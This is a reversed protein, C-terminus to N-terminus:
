ATKLVWVSSGAPWVPVDALWHAEADRHLPITALGPVERTVQNLWVKSAQPSVFYSPLKLGLLKIYASDGKVGRELNGVLLMLSGEKTRWYHVELPAEAVISSDFPSRGANQLLKIAARCALVYPTTDAILGGFPRSGTPKRTGIPSLFPPNWYMLNKGTGEELVLDPCSNTQYLVTGRPPKSIQYNGQWVQFDGALGDTVGQVENKISAEQLDWQQNLTKCPAEIVEKLRPDIGCTPDSIIALPEGARYLKLIAAVADGDLEGPTGLIFLDSRVRSLWEVRTVTLIPVRWKMLMGAHDDIFEKVMWDPHHQNLWRIYDRNYVLTPGGTERVKLADDTAADATEALFAVDRTTLLEDGHNVWSIYMGDQVKEGDPTKVAAHTYAWIEWQVKYPVAHITDWPEWADWTNILVYHRTKTGVLQAAHTLICSLQFTYGLQYDLYNDNWGGGWSQDIWADLHGEKAIQELDFGDLRWESVASVATSYGLLLCQPNAQKTERVLSATWQNWQEM